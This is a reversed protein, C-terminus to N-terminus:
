IEEERYLIEGGRITAMVKGFGKFGIFPTNHSKSVIYEEKMEYEKDTDVLIVDGDYGISIRGKNLGMIKGPNYSMMESLKNISIHGEKVLKTYCVMFSTQLGIMGPAGQMKDEKSHPAHDTAIVDVYGKKIAEILFLRDKEKRLPPNVRYYTEETLAIHHPTVECTINAGENKADIIYKMSEETSVHAIHLRCGSCKSLEIDRLTMINEALRMSIESLEPNEEHCIITINKKKAKIMAELMIKSSLVGKGDESIFRINDEEKIDDLHDISKGEMNKTISLCQHIDILNNDKAKKLVYHLVEKDSCVPNTNAMLNVATYGGKLAARSGSYIDEKYTFGPDRFHSHLEIFSPLLKYSKGDLISCDKCINQGIEKIKGDEIYIDGYFNECCDIINVNKILLNM